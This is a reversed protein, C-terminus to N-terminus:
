AESKSSENAVFSAGRDADAVNDDGGPLQIRGHERISDVMWGYGWFGRSARRLKRAERGDVEHVSIKAIWGDGFDYRYPANDIIQRGKAADKKSRGLNKVIAYLRGQGSWKGDWAGSSPMSLTFVLMM